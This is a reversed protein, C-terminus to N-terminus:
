SLIAYLMATLAGLLSTLAVIVKVAQNPATAVVYWVLGLCALAVIAAILSQALGINM